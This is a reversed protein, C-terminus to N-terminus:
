HKAAHKFGNSVSKNTALKPLPRPRRHSRGLSTRMSCARMSRPSSCRAFISEFVVSTMSRRRSFDIRSRSSSTNPFRKSKTRSSDVLRDLFSTVTVFTSVPQGRHDLLAHLLPKSRSSSNTLHLQELLENRTLPAPHHPASTEMQLIDQTYLLHAYELWDLVLARCIRGHVGGDYLPAHTDHSPSSAKEITKFVAARLQAKLRSILGDRELSQYVLERLEVDSGNLPDNLDDGGNDIETSM